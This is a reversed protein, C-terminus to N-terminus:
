FGPGPPRHRVLAKRCPASLKEFAEFLCRGREPDRRERPCHTRIDTGCAKQLEQHRKQGLARLKGRQQPTLLRHIRLLTRLRLKHLKSMQADIADARAMVEDERPLDQELLRRLAHRSKHLQQHLGQEEARTGDVIAKIRAKTAATLELEAAMRELGPGPGHARAVSPAGFLLSVVLVVRAARSM